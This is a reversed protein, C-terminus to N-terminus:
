IQKNEEENNEIKQNDLWEAFSDFAICDEVRFAGVRTRCLATLYAGSGLARGIDRALARIYTGKGCAVRIDLRM